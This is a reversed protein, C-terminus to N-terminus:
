PPQPLTLLDEVPESAPQAPTEVNAESEKAQLLDARKKLLSDLTWSSVQYTWKALAQERALKADRTKLTDAFEKDKELKVSDEEGELAERQRPYTGQVTVRLAINGNHNTGAKLEYSFGDFTELRLVTPQDLGLQATDAAILVDNFSPSSLAYNFSSTKRTDLQETDSLGTLTWEGAETERTVKFSNTAEFPHAVEISRIKEVKFFDKNLWAQPQPQLDSLTDSVLAARTKDQPNMVWRGVPIEREGPDGYPSPSSDKRLQTKGLLLSALGQGTKDRFEILTGGGPAAGPELLELRELQSAAVPEIQGPKLDRLKLVTRTIQSYDAPYGEREQVGWQGEQKVLTLTNSGQQLSLQALEEGVPLTGLLPRSEGPGGRQVSASDRKLLLLAAGGLVGLVLGLLLLQKQNM